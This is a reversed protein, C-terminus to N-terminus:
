KLVSKARTMGAQCSSKYTYNDKNSLSKATNGLWCITIFLFSFSFIMYETVLHLKNSLSIYRMAENGFYHSSEEKQM